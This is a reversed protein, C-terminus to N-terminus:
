KPVDSFPELKHYIDHVSFWPGHENDIEKRGKEGGREKERERKGKGKGAYRYRRRCVCM